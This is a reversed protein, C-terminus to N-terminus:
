KYAVILEGEEDLGYGLYFHILRVVEYARREVFKEAVGRDADFRKVEDIVEDFAIGGNLMKKLVRGRLSNWSRPEQVDDRAEFVFSRKRGNSKKAKPPPM